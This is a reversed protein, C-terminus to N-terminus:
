IKKLSKRLHSSLNMFTLETARNIDLKQQQKTKPHHFYLPADTPQFPTSVVWGLQHGPIIDIWACRLQGQSATQQIQRQYDPSRIPTSLMVTPVLVALSHNALCCLMGTNIGSAKDLPHIILRRLCTISLDVLVADATRPPQSSICKLAQPNAPLLTLNAIFCLM